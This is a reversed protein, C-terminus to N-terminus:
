VGTEKAMYLPQNLYSKTTSFVQLLYQSKQVSFSFVSIIAFHM